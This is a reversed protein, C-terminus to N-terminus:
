GRSGHSAEKAAMEALDGEALASLLKITSLRKMAEAIGSPEKLEIAEELLAAAAQTGTANARKVNELVNAYLGSM